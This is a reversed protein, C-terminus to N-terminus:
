ATRDNWSVYPAPKALQEAERDAIAALRLAAMLFSVISGGAIMGLAFILISSM